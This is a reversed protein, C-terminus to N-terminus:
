TTSGAQRSFFELLDQPTTDHPVMKESGPYGSKQLAIVVVESCFVSAPSHLPNHWKRKLWRGFMVVISGLLGGFDYSVGLYERAVHKLGDEIGARPKFSAVVENKKEFHALTLLRFGMEHAELVMDAEWDLDRYLFFTHSCESNTFRRVLWSVPNCRKPTSFGIRTNVIVEETGRSFRQGSGWSM